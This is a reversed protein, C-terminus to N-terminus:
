FVFIPPCFSFCVSISLYVFISFLHFTIFDIYLYTFLCIPLYVSLYGFMCLCIFMSPCIFMSLCIFMSPCIYM